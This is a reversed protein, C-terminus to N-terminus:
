FINNKYNSNYVTRNMHYHQESDSDLSEITTDSDLSDDDSINVNDVYELDEDSSYEYKKEKELYTKNFNNLIENNSEETNFKEHQNKKYHILDPNYNSNLIYDRKQVKQNPIFFKINLLMHHDTNKFDYLNGDLTEFRLDISSLKGIPHFAKYKVTTYDFRDQTYGDINLKFLALGPSNNRYKVTSNLNKEIINSKLICFRNKGGSLNVIGPSRIEKLLPRWDIINLKVGSTDIDPLEPHYNFISETAYEVVIEYRNSPLANKVYIDKTITFHKDNLEKYTIFMSNRSSYKFLTDDESIVFGSIDTYSKNYINLIIHINIGSTDFKGSKIENKKVANLINFLKEKEITINFGNIIPFDIKSDHNREAMDYEIGLRVRQNGLPDVSSLLLYSYVGKDTVLQSDFLRYSINIDNEDLGPVGVYYTANGYEEGKLITTSSTLSNPIISTNIQTTAYIQKTIINNDNFHKDKLSYDYLVNDPNHRGKIKDNYYIIYGSTDNEKNTDYDINICLTELLSKTGTNGSTDIVNKISDGSIDHSTRLLLKLSNHTDLSNYNKTDPLNLWPIHAYSIIDSYDGFGITSLITSKHGIIYFDFGSMSLFKIKMNIGPSRNISNNTSEPYVSTCVLRKPGIVLELLFNIQSVLEVITYNGPELEIKYIDFNSGSSDEDNVGNGSCDYYPEPNDRDIGSSDYIDNYKEPYLFYLTNNAIDIEYMSVPISAELIDVGYVYKFPEEFDITYSNSKPYVFKNRTSSDILTIVSEKISNEYLYDIDEISM